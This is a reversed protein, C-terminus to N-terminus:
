SISINSSVPNQVPITDKIDLEEVNIKAALSKFFNGKNKKGNNDSSRQIVEAATQDISLLCTELEDVRRKICEIDTYITDFSEKYNLCNAHVFNLERFYSEMDEFYSVLDVSKLLENISTLVKSSSNVKDYNINVNNDM